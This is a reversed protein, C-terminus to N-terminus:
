KVIEWNYGNVCWGCEDSIYDAGIEEILDAPTQEESWGLEGLTTEIDDITIDEDDGDVDIDYFRIITDENYDSKIPFVFVNVDEVNNYEDYYLECGLGNEVNEKSEISRFAGVEILIDSLTESDLSQLYEIVNKESMKVQNKMVKSKIM